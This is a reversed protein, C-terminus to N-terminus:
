PSYMSQYVCLEKKGGERGEEEVCPHGHLRKCARMHVFRSVGVSMGAVWKCAQSHKILRLRAWASGYAHARPPPQIPPCTRRDAIYLYVGAWKVEEAERWWASM